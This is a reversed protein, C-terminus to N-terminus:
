PAAGETAAEAPASVLDDSVLDATSATGAKRAAKTARRQLTARGKTSFPGDMARWYRERRGAPHRADAIRQIKTKLLGTKDLERYGREATRESVGYWGQAREVAMSFAPTRPNQTEALLILLMAKGPMTLEEAMGFDWFAHPVVFYGPGEEEEAGPKHWPKGSGDERLLRLVPTRSDDERVVLSLRQLTDIARTVATADVPKKVSIINAWTALSLPTGELIPQLAHLLLLLDLARQNRSSVLDYLVSARPSPRGEVPSSDKPQQVFTKRLPVYGRKAAALLARRAGAPGTDPDDEIGAFPDFDSAGDM